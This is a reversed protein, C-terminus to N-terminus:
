TAYRFYPNEKDTLDAFEINEIKDFESTDLHGEDRRKNAWSYLFYLAILTVLSVCTFTVICIIATNYGPAEKALFTQPGILNGVCYAILLLANVTTKKTHGAVNSSVLSLTCIMGLPAVFWLSFGGYEKANGECFALMCTGIVAIATAFCAVLLRSNLRQAIFALLPCGVFEIAGPPMQYLLSETVSYNFKENLLIGGFNTVGGNPINLTVAFFVLLWTNIDLFAEKFQYFKFHKNGFGQQNSRIRAVVGKKDEENLFWATAPTNPVHFFIVIGLAITLVGTIIFILKWTAMSHSGANEALGYAIASGIITGIGNSSFWLATRFFVEEKKYYQGTIIVFAPTISSELMGLITRLAIFGAYNPTSHLAIVVGWLIVFISVTTAVPFRQLIRVSPFEFFLYGLYFASGTWSYMDGKMDLAERVGLISAYSNSLKDMFQFCYLLCMLPMLYCDIKRLLKRDKEPDVDEVDHDIIFKMAEDADGTINVVKGTVPSKIQTITNKNELDAETISIVLDNEKEIGM